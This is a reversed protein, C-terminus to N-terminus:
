EPAQFGFRRLMLPSPIGGGGGTPLSQQLLDHALASRGKLVNDIQTKYQPAMMTYENQAELYPLANSGFPGKNMVDAMRNLDKMHSLYSDRDAVEAFGPVEDKYYNPRPLGMDERIKKIPLHFGGSDIGLDPVRRFRNAKGLMGIPGFGLWANRPDALVNGTAQLAAGAGEGATLPAQGLNMGWVPRQGQQIAQTVNALAALQPDVQYGYNPLTLPM